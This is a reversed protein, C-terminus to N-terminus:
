KTRRRAVWDVAAAPGVVDINAPDVADVFIVLNLADARASPVILGDYALFAAADGIEATREYLRESYRSRDIGLTALEDVTEIRLVSFLHVEIEHCTHRMRSPFVPQLNLFYEVEAIAGEAVLSTYLVDVTGLDWRGGARSPDLPSRREHVVRWVRGHFESRAKADLAELLQPDRLRRGAAM